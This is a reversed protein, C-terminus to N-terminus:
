GVLRVVARQLRGNDRGDTWTVAAVPRVNSRRQRQVPHSRASRHAVNTVTLAANAM